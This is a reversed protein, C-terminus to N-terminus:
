NMQSLIKLFEIDLHKLMHLMRGVESNVVLISYQYFAFAFCTNLKWLSSFLCPQWEGHKIKTIVPSNEETFVKGARDEWHM